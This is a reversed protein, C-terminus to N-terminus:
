PQPELEFVAPERSAVDNWGVNYGVSCNILKLGKYDWTGTDEHIHGFCTVRPRKKDIAAMLDICGVREGRLTMDGYGFPPGHVLLVDVNQPILKWKDAIEVGRHLNFAWDHFWPQWPSGYFRLGEVVVSEDKLYIVGNGGLVTEAEQRNQDQLCFDHNGAIVIKHKQPQRDLWKRFKVLQKISGDMTLDGSVTLIDADPTTIGTNVHPDAISCIKM